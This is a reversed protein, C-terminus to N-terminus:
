GWTCTTSIVTSCTCRAAMPEFLHLGEGYVTTTVAAARPLATTTIM